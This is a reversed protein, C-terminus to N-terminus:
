DAAAVLALRPAIGIQRRYFCIGRGNREANRLAQVGKDGIAVLSSGRTNGSDTMRPLFQIKPRVFLVADASETLTQWWETATSDSVLAVGDGHEIFREVWPFLSNRLGYPPNCWVFGRWPMKLGNQRKTYHKSAPVWPVVTKGPSAVDLDFEVDMAAFIERPTYWESTATEPDINISAASWCVGNMGFKKRFPEDADAFKLLGLFSSGGEELYSEFDARPVAAVKQADAAIHRDTIGLDSLTPLHRFGVNARGKSRRPTRVLYEGLTRMAELKLQGWAKEQKDATAIVNTLVAVSGEPDNVGPRALSETAAEYRRQAEHLNM